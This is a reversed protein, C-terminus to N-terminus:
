WIETPYGCWEPSTFGTADKHYYVTYNVDHLWEPHKTQYNAPANGEFKVAQLTNCYNFVEEGMDTVSAPIVIETLKSKGCLANNGISVLGENLTISELSTCSGFAGPSIERLSKPLIVSKINTYGFANYGIATIGDEFDITEIGSSLFAEDYIKTISKPINIHKLLICNAFAEGGIRKLTDPLTVASLRVCDRFVSQDISKLGQCLSITTLCSCGEFASDKIQTVSYPIEVSVITRNDRFAMGGIQTVAKEEIKAPIIVDQDTGLYDTITIGGEENEVYEFDSVPSASKESICSNYSCGTLILFLFIVCTLFTRKM